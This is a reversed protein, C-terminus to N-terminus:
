SPVAEQPAPVSAGGRMARDLIAEETAQGRKFEGTVRGERMVLIRDSMGLLEPLESSIMLIAAGRQALETMLRYVEVKAGVDIGRTPEDFLFIDARSALGKAIVVKQQNGGSLYLARKELNPTQIRLSAVYEGAHRRERALDLLGGRSFARLSGLTVNEKVSMSALIGHQKRDEPVFAMREAIARGPRDIRAPRGRLVVRGSDLPDAGFLARALETRRSGVLGAIGLIEGRRLSLSVGHLVGRRSLDEARLVEEGAAVDVKPFKEELARGVMLRILEDVPTEAV